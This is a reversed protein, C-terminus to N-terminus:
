RAPFGLTDTVIQEGKQGTCKAFHQEKAIRKDREAIQEDKEAIQEKLKCIMDILLAKEAALETLDRKEVDCAGFMKFDQKQEVKFCDPEKKPSWEVKPKVTFLSSKKEKPSPQEVNPTIGATQYERMPLSSEACM